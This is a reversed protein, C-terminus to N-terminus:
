VQLGHLTIMIKGTTLVTFLFLHCWNSCNIINLEVHGFKWWKLMYDTNFVIHYKVNTKFSTVTWIQHSNICVYCWYIETWVLWVKLTWYDHIGTAITNACLYFIEMMESVEIPDSQDSSIAGLQPHNQEGLFMWWRSIIKIIVVLLPPITADLLYLGPINSFM